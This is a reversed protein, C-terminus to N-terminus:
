RSRKVVQIPQIDNPRLALHSFCALCLDAVTFGPEAIVGKLM